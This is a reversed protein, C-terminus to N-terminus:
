KIWSGIKGKTAPLIDMLERKRGRETNAVVELIDKTTTTLSPKPMWKYRKPDIPALVDRRLRKLQRDVVDDPEDDDAKIASLALLPIVVYLGRLYKQISEKRHAPLKKYDAATLEGSMWKKVFSFTATYSGIEAQGHRNIFEEGFRERVLTPFWRKFQIVARGWSYMQLMRQDIPSYGFGQEKKVKQTMESIQKSTLANNKEGPKVILKGNNDLTYANLQEKTMMGLFSAGQIWHESKDMFAFLIKSFTSRKHLATVNDWQYHELKFIQNVIEWNVTTFPRLGPVRSSKQFRNRFDWYRKEGRIMHKGGKSRFEQYKGIMLNGIAIKPHLGLVIYATLKVLSNIIRDVKNASIVGPISIPGEQKRNGISGQKVVTKLYKLINTNGRMENIKMAGDIYPLLAEMGQFSDPHYEARWEKYDLTNNKSKKTWKLWDNYKSYDGDKWYKAHIWHKFIKNLNTTGFESNLIKGGNSFHKFINSGFL